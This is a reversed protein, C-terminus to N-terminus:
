FRDSQIMNILWLKIQIPPQKQFNYNLVDIFNFNYLM